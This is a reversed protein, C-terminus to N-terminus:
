HSSKRRKKAQWLFVVAASVVAGFLLRSFLDSSRSTEWEIKEPSVNLDFTRAASTSRQMDVPLDKLKFTQHRKITTWRADVDLVPPADSFWLGKSASGGEPATVMSHAETTEDARYSFVVDVPGPGQNHVQVNLLGSCALITALGLAYLLWRM